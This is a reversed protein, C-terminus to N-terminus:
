VMQPPTGAYSCDFLLCVLPFLDKCKFVWTSQLVLFNFFFFPRPRPLFASFNANKSIIKALYNTCFMPLLRNLTAPFRTLTVHPCQQLLLLQNTNPIHLKHQLMSYSHSNLKYYINTKQPNKKEKLLFFILNKNNLPALIASHNLLKSSHLWITKSETGIVESHIQCLFVEPLMQTHTYVCTYSHLLLNAEWGCSKLNM